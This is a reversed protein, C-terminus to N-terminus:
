RNVWGIFALNLSDPVLYQKGFKILQGEKEGWTERSYTPLIKLFHNKKEM